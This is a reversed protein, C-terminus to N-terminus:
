RRWILRIELTYKQCFKLYTSMIGGLLMLTLSAKTGALSLVLFIQSFSLSERELAWM